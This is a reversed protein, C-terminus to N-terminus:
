FPLRSSDGEEDRGEYGSRRSRTPQEEKSSQNSSIGYVNDAVVEVAYRRKGDKDEWPRLQLRGSVAAMRGKSLYKEAYDAGKGYVIVDLFDTEKQGPEPPGFDREVALSFKAVPVNKVTMRKEPDKTLRGILDIHNLM